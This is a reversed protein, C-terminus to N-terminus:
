RRTWAGLGAILAEVRAVICFDPDRQSDKGARIKGCFENIDALAQKESGIFSNTKPFEKDEICVGAIGRQELKRVLRRMNNFNGYGTDGDLLIPVRGHRRVHIGAYRRGPDLKGRQQGERLVPDVPGPRQGLDGQVRGATRTQGLHRQQAELIFELEPSELLDRLQRSKNNKVTM